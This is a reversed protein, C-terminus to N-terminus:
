DERGFFYHQILTLILIIAFLVFGMSAAYGMQMDKFAKDVIDLVVTMTSNLPGGSGNSIVYAQDFMQFTGILSLVVNLFTTRRLMPVTVFWLLRIGSAGDIAAAEYVEAPVDQLGALYIIMYQGVSSWIAMTMIAPLAFSPSNLYNPGHIGFVLLLKNLLGQPQFIFIFMVSVAVTSTVTPLYYLVRFITKGKVHHVVLALLLALITQIPVVGLSYLTNNLLARMFIPDKFLHAYNALGAFQKASPDLFSFHYFSIYLAYLIPGLLFVLLGVLAPLLFLYGALAQEMHGRHIRRRPKRPIDPKRQDFALEQMAM